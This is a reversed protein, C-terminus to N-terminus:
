YGPPIGLDGIKLKGSDNLWSITNNIVDMVNSDRMGEQMAVGFGEIDAETENFAFALKVDPNISTFYEAVPLDVIAADVSGTTLSLVMHNVSPLSVTEVGFGPAIEEGTSGTQVAVKLSYIDSSNTINTTSAEVICCQQSTFYPISFDVQAERYPRIAFAAIVIDYAETSLGTMLANFFAAEIQLDIRVPRGRLATYYESLNAAIWKALDIDFGIVELGDGTDVLSEFPPYDPATGLRIYGRDVISDGISVDPKVDFYIKFLFVSTNTAAMCFIAVVAIGVIKNRYTNRAM